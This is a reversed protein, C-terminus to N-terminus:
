SRLYGGQSFPPISGKNKLCRKKKLIAVNVIHSSSSKMESTAFYKRWDLRVKHETNEDQNNINYSAKMKWNFM